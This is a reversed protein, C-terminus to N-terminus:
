RQIILVEVGSRKAGDPTVARVFCFYPGNPANRGNEDRLDWVFERRNVDLGEDLILRGELNYVILSASSTGDPCRYRFTAQDSAPNPYVNLTCRDTPAPTDEVRIEREETVSAGDDDTVTFTVTYTGPDDYTHTPNQETSTAGDGFDWEWEVVEGDPDESRDIFETPEGAVPPDPRTEFDVDPQENGGIITVTGPSVDHPITEFDEDHFISFSPDIEQTDGPSGVARVRIRMLTGSTIGEGECTTAAFRLTGGQVNFAHVPCDEHFGVNDIEIVNPNFNIQGQFSFLGGSPSDVLRVLVDGQGGQPIEISSVEIEASQTQQAGGSISLGALSLLSILAVTLWHPWGRARCGAARM